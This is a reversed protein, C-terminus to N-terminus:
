HPCVTPSKGPPGTALVVCEQHLPGPNWAQDSFYIGYAAVLFDCAAVSSGAPQSLLHWTSHGPAALYM